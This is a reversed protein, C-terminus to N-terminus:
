NSNHRQGPMARHLNRHRTRIRGIQPLTDQRRAFVSLAAVRRDRALELDTLRGHVIPEVLHAPRPPTLRFGMRTTRRGLHIGRGSAHQLVHNGIVIIRSQVFITVLQRLACATPDTPGRHTHDQLIQIQYSFFAM